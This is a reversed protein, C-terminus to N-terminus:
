IDWHPAQHGPQGQNAELIPCVLYVQEKDPGGLISPPSVSKFCPWENRPTYPFLFFCKETFNRMVEVNIHCFGGKNREGLKLNSLWLFRLLQRRKQNYLSIIHGNNLSFPSVWPHYEFIWWSIYQGIPHWSYVTPTCSIPLQQCTIRENMLSQESVQEAARQRPQGVSERPFEGLDQGAM